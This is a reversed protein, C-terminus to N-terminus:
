AGKPKAEELLELQVGTCLGATRQAKASVSFEDTWRHGNKAIHKIV